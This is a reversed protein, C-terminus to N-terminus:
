LRSELLVIINIVTLNKITSKNHTQIIDYFLTGQIYTISEM